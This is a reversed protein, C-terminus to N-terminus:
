TLLFSNGHLGWILKSTSCVLVIQMYQKWYSCIIIQYSDLLLWLHLLHGGGLIPQQHVKQFHLWDGWLFHFSFSTPACFPGTPFGFFRPGLTEQFNELPDLQFLRTLMLLKIFIPLLQVFLLTKPCFMLLPDWFYSPCGRVKSAGRCSLCRWRVCRVLFIFIFLCVLCSVWFGLAM